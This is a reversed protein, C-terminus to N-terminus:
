GKLQVALATEIMAAWISQSSPDRSPCGAQLTITPRFFWQEGDVSGERLRRLILGGTQRWRASPQRDEDSVYDEVSHPLLM